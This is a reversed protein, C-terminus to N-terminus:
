PLTLVLGISARALLFPPPTRWFHDIQNTLGATRQDVRGHNLERHAWCLGVFLFVRDAHYVGIVPQCSLPEFLLVLQVRIDCDSTCRQSQHLFYIYIYIYEQEIPALKRKLGM